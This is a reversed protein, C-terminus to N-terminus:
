QLSATASLTLTVIRFPLFPMQWYARICIFFARVLVMKDRELFIFVYNYMIAILLPVIQTNVSYFGEAKKCEILSQPGPDTASFCVFVADGGEEM